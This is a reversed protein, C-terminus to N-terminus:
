VMRRSFGNLINAFIPQVHGNPAEGIYRISAKGPVNGGFLQEAKSVAIDSTVAEVTASLGADVFSVLWKRM